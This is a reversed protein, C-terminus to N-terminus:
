GLHLEEQKEHLICGANLYLKNINACIEFVWKWHRCFIKTFRDGKKLSIICAHSCKWYKGGSDTSAMKCCIIHNLELINILLNGIKHSYKTSFPMINDIIYHYYKNMYFM